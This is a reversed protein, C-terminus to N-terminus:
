LEALPTFGIERTPSHIRFRNGPQRRADVIGYGTAAVALLMPGAPRDLGGILAVIVGGALGVLVGVPM